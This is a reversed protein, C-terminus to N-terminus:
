KTLTPSPANVTEVKRTSPKQMEFSANPRQDRAVPTLTLKRGLAASQVIAELIQVDALGEEGSPEPEHDELICQSFHVLEAAFQDHPATNTQKVDGDTTLFEHSKNHYGYASDLRIDGKTGIVRYESV